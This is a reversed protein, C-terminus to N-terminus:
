QKATIRYTPSNSAPRLTYTQIPKTGLPLKHSTYLTSINGDDPNPFPHQRMMFAMMQQNFTHQHHQNAATREDQQQIHLSLNYIINTLDNTSPPPHQRAAQLSTTNSSNAPVIMFNAPRTDQEQGFQFSLQRIPNLIASTPPESGSISHITQFDDSKSKKKDPSPSPSTDPTTNTLQAQTSSTPNYPTTIQQPTATQTVPNPPVTTSQITPRTNYFKSLCLPNSKYNHSGRILLQDLIDNCECFEKELALDLNQLIALVENRHDKHFSLMVSNAPQYPNRNPEASHIIYNHDPTTESELQNSNPAPLTLTTIISRISLPGATAAVYIMTDLPNFINTTKCDEENNHNIQQQINEQLMKFPM